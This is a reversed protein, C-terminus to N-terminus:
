LRARKPAKNDEEPRCCKMTNEEVLTVDAEDVISLAHYHGPYVIQNTVDEITTLLSTDIKPFKAKSSGAHGLKQQETDHVKMRFALDQHRLIHEQASLRLSLAAIKSQARSSQAAIDEPSVKPRPRIVDAVKVELQRAKDDMVTTPSTITARAQVLTARAEKEQKVRVHLTAPEHRPSSNRAKATVENTKKDSEVIGRTKNKRGPDKQVNKNDKKKLPTDPESDPLTMVNQGQTPKTLKSRPKTHSTSPKEESTENEIDEELIDADHLAIEYQEEELYNPPVSTRMAVPVHSAYQRRVSNIDPFAASHKGPKHPALSAM